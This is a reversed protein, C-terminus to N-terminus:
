SLEDSKTKQDKLEKKWGLLRAQAGHHEAKEKSGLELWIRSLSTQIYVDEPELEAAKEAAAKAGEFDKESYLIETLAHLASFHNPDQALVSHIKDLASEIEGLTFDLTADEVVSQLEDDMCDYLVM